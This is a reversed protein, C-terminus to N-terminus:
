FFYDNQKATSFIIDKNEFIKHLPIQLRKLQATCKMTEIKTIKQAMTLIDLNKNASLVDWKIKFKSVDLLVVTFYM